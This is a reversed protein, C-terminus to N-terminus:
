KETTTSSSINNNNTQKFDVYHITSIKAYERLVVEAM